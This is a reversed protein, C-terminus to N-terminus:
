QRIHPQMRYFSGEFLKVATEALQRPEFFEASFIDLYLSLSEKDLRGSITKEANTLTFHWALDSERLCDHTAALGLDAALLTLTSKLEAVPLKCDYVDVACSIARAGSEEFRRKWDFLYTRSGNQHYVPVAHRVGDNTVIGRNLMGSIVYKASGLDRVLVEIAVNFDIMDGCTFIDVAAYDYEPWAHVAFHSESIVVVGSVGQPEFNHFTSSIVHAGSAQASHLFIREMRVADSLIASDCDYLELTLHRGLVVASDHSSIDM